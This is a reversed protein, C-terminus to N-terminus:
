PLWETESVPAMNRVHTLNEIARQRAERRTLVIGDHLALAFVKETLRQIMDSDDPTGPTYTFPNTVCPQQQFGYQERQTM